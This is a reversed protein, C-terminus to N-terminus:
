VKVGKISYIKNKLYTTSWILDLFYFSLAIFPSTYLKITLLFIEFIREATLIAQTRKIIEECYYVEEMLFPISSLNYVIIDAQHNLSDNKNLKILILNNINIPNKEYILSTTESIKQHSDLYAIGLVEAIRKHEEKNKDETTKVFYINNIGIERLSFVLDYCDKSILDKSNKLLSLPQLKSKAPTAGKIQLTNEDMIVEDSIFVNKLNSLRQSQSFNKVYVKYYFLKNFTYIYGLDHTLCLFAPYCLILASLVSGLGYGFGILATSVVFGLIFFRLYGKKFLKIPNFSDIISKNIFNPPYAENINDVYQIYSILENESSSIEDYIILISGSYINIKYNKIANIKKLNLELSAALPKNGILEKSKFRVRGPISFVKELSIKYACM